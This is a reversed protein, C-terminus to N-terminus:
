PSVRQYIIVMGPRAVERYNALWGELDPYRRIALAPNYGGLGDLILTPRSRALEARHARTAMTEVPQSETLHRDAPVGTLPQSDLFRSAAVRDAYVYLEPRFGWVFIVDRETTLAGAGGAARRSDQDMAADRWQAPGHVALSVYRPGFRALPVLLLLAFVMARKRSAAFGRAAAIAAVPLLQFFYRPFFRWGAAVAALSAAAWGAFTWRRKQARMGMLAALVIAAHFGAWDLTRVVGNRVPSEVFTGGAYIRGWKWVQDFYAALADQSWLCAAALANPAAFGLLLLPLARWSWIACAALVFVGKANILFAVGALAGSWFARGRWALWVAAVHPAVMLLDAALPMVASPIDFTLYFALLGAAWLGEAESWLDRAFRYAIWSALTVYAAGALRLLWGARAAWLLYVVAVLPPKDFWIDRYLAKGALMQRAAALPLGEEAWLIGAHALRAMAALAFLLAFFLASRRTV